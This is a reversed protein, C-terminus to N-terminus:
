RVEAIELKKENHILTLTVNKPYGLDTNYSISVNVLYAKDDKYNGNTFTTNKISEITAEKVQPLTQKRTGYVDSKVSYYIGDPGSAKKQFNERFVSVSSIFQVGGVDNKSVKSNLDYFDAVFMQSILSAYKEEDVNDSSLLKKLDNFLKTFYKTSNDTVYYDFNKIEDVVEVEKAKGKKKFSGKGVIYLSVLLAILIVVLILILINVKKIKVNSKKKTM